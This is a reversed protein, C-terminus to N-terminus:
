ANCHDDAKTTDSSDTSDKKWKSNDDDFSSANCDKSKDTMDAIGGVLQNMKSIANMEFTELLKGKKTSM